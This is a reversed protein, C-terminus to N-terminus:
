ECKPLVGSAAIRDTAEENKLSSLIILVFCSTYSILLLDKSLSNTGRKIWPLPSLLLFCVSIINATKKVRNSLWLTSRGLKKACLRLHIRGISGPVASRQKRNSYTSTLFFTSEKILIQFSTTSKCVATLDNNWGWGADHLETSIAGWSFDATRWWRLLLLKNCTDLKCGRGTFRGGRCFM